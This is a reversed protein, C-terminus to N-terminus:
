KNEKLSYIHVEVERTQDKGNKARFWSWRRDREHRIVGKRTLTRLANSISTSKINPIEARIEAFSVDGGKENLIRVIQDPISQLSLNSELEAKLEIPAIAYCVLRKIYGTKSECEVFRGRRESILAGHSVLRTLTTNVTM